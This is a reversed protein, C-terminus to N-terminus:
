GINGSAADSVSQYRKGDVIVRKGWPTLIEFEKQMEDAYRCPKWDLSHGQKCWKAITQINVGLATAAEKFPKEDINKHFNLAIVLEGNQNALFDTEFLKHNLIPYNMLYKKLLSMGQNIAKSGVPFTELEIRKRPKTKPEFMCFTFDSHDENFYVSFETRMRYYEAPSEFVEYKPFDLNNKKFLNVVNEIKENLYQAYNQPNTTGILTKLM